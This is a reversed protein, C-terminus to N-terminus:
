HSVASLVHEVKQSGLFQGNLYILPDQEAGGRIDHVQGVIITHTGVDLEHLTTCFLSAQADEIYPMGDNPRHSWQDNAFRDVSDSTSCSIAMPKDQHRLVNVCFSRNNKVPQHMGTQKGVCLLVTPPDMSVTTFSSATMAHQTTDRSGTSVVVVSAAVGRMVNKLQKAVDQPTPDPPPNNSPMPSTNVASFFSMAHDVFRLRM